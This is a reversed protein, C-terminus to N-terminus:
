RKLRELNQKLALTGAEMLPRIGEVAADPLVDTMWVFRGRGPM